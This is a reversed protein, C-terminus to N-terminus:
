DEDFARNLSGKRNGLYRKDVSDMWRKDRRRMNRRDRKDQEPEEGMKKYLDALTIPQDSLAQRLKELEEEKQIESEYHSLDITRPNQIQQRRREIEQESDTKYVDDKTKPGAQPTPRNSLQTLGDNKKIDDLTIPHALQQRLREMKDETGTKFVDDKTKPMSKQTNQTPALNDDGFKAIKYVIAMTKDDNPNFKGINHYYFDAPKSFTQETPTWESIRDLLFYKWEPVKSQTSGYPEFARIVKNGLSTEGYAYVEIVRPGSHFIGDGSNKVGNKRIPGNYKIIIRKHNDLADNVQEDTVGENLIKKLINELLKM